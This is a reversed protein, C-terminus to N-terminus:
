AALLKKDMTAKPVVRQRIAGHNLFYYGSKTIRLTTMAFPDVRHIEVLNLDIAQEVLMKLEHDQKENLAGFGEIQNLSYVRNFATENGKLVSILRKTDLVFPTTKLCNLVTQIEHKQINTLM